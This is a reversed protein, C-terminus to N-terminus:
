VGHEAEPPVTTFTLTDKGRSKAVYMMNDATKIMEDVSSPPAMFTAVGVSFTFPWGKTRMEQSLNDKIRNMIRSVMKPGTEPFLIAFEDGGLRGLLDTKRIQRATVEAIRLLVEDGKSHGFEDNIAKFDDVDLYAITIAHGYRLSRDIEMQAREHFARTNAAGTLADTRSLEELSLM